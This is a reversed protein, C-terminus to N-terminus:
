NLLEMIDHWKRAQKGRKPQPKDSPREYCYLFIEALYEPTDTSKTFEKFSMASSHRWSQWADDANTDVEHLIRKLQTDIDNPNLGKSNAWNTLKTASTWQVLGFGPDSAERQWFEANVNSETEMNGLIGYVANKSWKEEILSNRVYRANILMHAQSLYENSCYLDNKGPNKASVEETFEEAVWGEIWSWTNPNNEDQSNFYRVKIWDRKTGASNVAEVPKDSSDTILVENKLIAVIKNGGASDRITVSDNTFLVKESLGTATGTTVKQGSDIPYICGGGYQCVLYSNTTPIKAYEGSSADYVLIEENLSKWQTSVRMYCMHGGVTKAVGDISENAAVTIVKISSLRDFKPSKCVGFTGRFLRNKDIIVDKGYISASELSDKSLLQKKVGYQCALAAGDTLFEAYVKNSQNSGNLEIERLMEELSAQEQTEIAM